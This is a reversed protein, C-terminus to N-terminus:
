TSGQSIKEKLAEFIQVQVEPPQDMVIRRIDSHTLLLQTVVLRLFKPNEAVRSAVDIASGARPRRARPASSGGFSKVRAFFLGLLALLAGIFLAFIAVFSNTRTLVVLAYLVVGAGLGAVGYRLLLDANTEDPTTNHTTATEEGTSPAEPGKKQDTEPQGDGGQGGM